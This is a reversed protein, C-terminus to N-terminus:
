WLGVTIYFEKWGNFVLVIIMHILFIDGSGGDVFCHAPFPHFTLKPHVAGKVSIADVSLRQHVPTM